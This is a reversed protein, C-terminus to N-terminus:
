EGDRQIRVYFKLEGLLRLPVVRRPLLVPDQRIKVHM